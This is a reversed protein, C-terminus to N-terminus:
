IGFDEDVDFEALQLELQTIDAEFMYGEAGHRFHKVAFCECKSLETPITVM